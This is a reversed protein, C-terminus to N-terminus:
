GLFYYSIMILYHHYFLKYATVNIEEVDSDRQIPIPNNVRTIPARAGTVINQTLDLNIDMHSVALDGLTIDTM